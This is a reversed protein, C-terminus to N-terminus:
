WRDFGGRSAETVQVPMPLSFDSFLPPQHFTHEGDQGAEKNLSPSYTRFHIKGADLDFVMFRLWGDGGVISTNGQYDTLLQYVTHGAENLDIRIGQSKSVQNVTAGWAHGCLVMFIQDNRAILKKWVDVADNWGGPSNKLYHDSATTRAAPVELPNADDADDPPNLYSHTTVITAFGKHADIVKQAWALAADGAEMELAIHLFNRDGARFVQFSSLGPNYLGMSAGGYWRKGAFYRSRPGFSKLWAATGHLPAPGNAAAYSYSDYDHNGPTMGFPVGSSALIDVAEEARAYEAGAGWSADGPSGNTGDGHQVVDGVHSVFALNMARKFDKLFRMEQKFVELSQPQPKKDDVYNQTDPIVAITFSDPARLEPGHARAAGPVLSLALFLIALARKLSM